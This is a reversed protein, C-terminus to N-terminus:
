NVKISDKQKFRFIAKVKGQQKFRWLYIELKVYKNKNIIYKRLKALKPHQLKQSNNILNFMPQKRFSKFM